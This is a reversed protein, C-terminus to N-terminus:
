HPLQLHSWMRGASSFTPTRPPANSDLTLETSTDAMLQQCSTMNIPPEAGLSRLESARPKGQPLMDGARAALWAWDTALAAEGVLPLPKLM